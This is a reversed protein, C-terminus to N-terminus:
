AGISEIRGGALVVTVGRRVGGDRVQVVNANTLALRPASEPAQGQSGAVVTMTVLAACARAVKVFMLSGGLLRPATSNYIISNTVATREVTTTTSAASHAQSNTRPPRSRRRAARKSLAKLAVGVGM